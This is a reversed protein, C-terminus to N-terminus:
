EQKITIFHGVERDFSVDWGEKRMANAMKSSLTVVLTQEKPNFGVTQNIDLFGKASM